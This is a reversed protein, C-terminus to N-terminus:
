AFATRNKLGSVSRRFKKFFLLVVLIVDDVTRM